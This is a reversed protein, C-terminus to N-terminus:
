KVLKWVSEVVEGGGIIFFVCNFDGLVEFVFWEVFDIVM